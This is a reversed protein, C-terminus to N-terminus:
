DMVVCDGNQRVLTVIATSFMSLFTSIAKYCAIEGKRM